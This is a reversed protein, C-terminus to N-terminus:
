MKKNTGSRDFRVKIGLDYDKAGYLELFVEPTVGLRASLRYVDHAHVFIVYEKCRNTRCVVCPFEGTTSIDSNDQMVKLTIFSM